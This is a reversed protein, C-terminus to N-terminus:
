RIARKGRVALVCRASFSVIEDVQCTQRRVVIHVLTSKLEIQIISEKSKHANWRHTKNIGKMRSEIARKIVIHALMILKFIYIIQEYFLACLMILYLDFQSHM